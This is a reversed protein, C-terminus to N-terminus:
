HITGFVNRDVDVPQCNRVHYVIDDSRVDYVIGNTRVYYVIDDTRVDFITDDTRILSKTMLESMM